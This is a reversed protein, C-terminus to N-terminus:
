KKSKSKPVYVVEQVQEPAMSWNAKRITARETLYDGSNRGGVERGKKRRGRRAGRGKEHGGEMEREEKSGEMRNERM